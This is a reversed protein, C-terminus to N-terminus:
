LKIDYALRRRDGPHDEELLIMGRLVYGLSTFLRQANKNDEHTDIRIYEINSKLALEHAFAM